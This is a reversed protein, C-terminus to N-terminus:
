YYGSDMFNNVYEGNSSYFHSANLKQLALERSPVSHGVSDWVLLHIKQIGKFDTVFSVVQHRYLSEFM